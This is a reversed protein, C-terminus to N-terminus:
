NLSSSQTLKFHERDAETVCISQLLMDDLRETAFTKVSFDAYMFM